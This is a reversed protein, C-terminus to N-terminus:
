AFLAAFKRASVIQTAKHRRLPFLASMDGTVLYDALGAESPNPSRKVNPLPNIDEALRRIQNM